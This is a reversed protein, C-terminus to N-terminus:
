SESEWTEFDQCLLKQSSIAIKSFSFPLPHNSPLPPSPSRLQNLSSLFASTLRPEIETAHHYDSAIPGNMLRSTLSLSMTNLRRTSSTATLTGLTLLYVVKASLRFRPCRVPQHGGNIFAAMARWQIRKKKGGKKERETSWVFIERWRNTRLIVFTLHRSLFIALCSWGSANTRKYQRETLTLNTIINIITLQTHIFINYM